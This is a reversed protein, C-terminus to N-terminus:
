HHIRLLGEQRRGLILFIEALYGREGMSDLVPPYRLVM